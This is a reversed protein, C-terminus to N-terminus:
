PRSRKLPTLKLDCSLRIQCALRANKCGASYVELMEREDADPQCLQGLGSLEVKVLCTGCIGTRCGFLVPSNHIDLQESLRSRELMEIAGFPQGDLGTAAGGFCITFSKSM